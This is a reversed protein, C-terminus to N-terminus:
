LLKGYIKDKCGEDFLMDQWDNLYLKNALKHLGGLESVVDWCHPSESLMHDLTHKINLVLPQQMAGYMEIKPGLVRYALGIRELSRLHEPEVVLICETIGAKLAASFAAAILGLPAYPIRRRLYALRGQKFQIRWDQDHYAPLFRGDDPRRRFKAAVCLGSIECLRPIKDNMHIYPHDCVNQAPFSRAANKTDPLVTRVTGMVEGTPRHILLHHVAHDDYIDREIADDYRLTQQPGNEIRYVQYRLRYAKEKLVDTNAEVITFTNHYAAHFSKQRIANLCTKLLSFQPM